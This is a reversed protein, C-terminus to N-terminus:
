AGLGGSVAGAALRARIATTSEGTTRPVYEIRIGRQDLFDQTIHLQALYDKGQWDDGVALICRPYRSIVQGAYEDGTNRVVLDVGRIACLMTMRDHQSQIPRRGKFREVFEDSNVAVVVHGELGAMRRCARFLELHGVHLMDFTGITLVVNM